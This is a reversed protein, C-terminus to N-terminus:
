PLRLFKQIRGFLTRPATAVVSTAAAAARAQDLEARRTSVVTSIHEVLGPREIALERFREASIELVRVDDAARVTATRPEGTLMSMEGFFGGPGLRAVETGAPEILVRAHGHLLVYMSSGTDGQRVIAEGAAFIHEQGTRSLMMRADSPLTAFLDIGGLRAAASMVDGESRLPLEERSYEVQIPYPIEINRRRFTYWINTRVQDRAQTDIAYDSIWFQVVYDLSSAGFAKLLINPPPAALVLPSNALAEGLAAKVDNPATSYSAGVEVEVRTPITPESYNLIAEKSIIGNPVILFQGAKTRLKTARWTIEQVQGERDGIAIWHGVRFPKEIQIALGSFLNGLTDQLAFGVVVAGVASTTLLQEKMLVTAVVMFLGILTVDQVIAPFRESARDERWPNVLVSIGLNIVALVFVLRALAGMVAPDGLGQRVAVEFAFHIILLWLSFQLRRRVYRSPIAVLLALTVALAVVGAIMLSGWTM